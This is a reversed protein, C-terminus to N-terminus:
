KPPETTVGAGPKYIIEVSAAQLGKDGQEATFRVGTGIELREYDDHSVSNKHFYIDEGTDVTKIFGYGEEPFIKNVVGMVQQQPHVKVDGRQKENLEKLQREAAHFTQTLVTELPNHMDGQSASHKAVIEHGPPVTIDINVQYPNGRQQHKQPKQVTVRCSTIHDCVKELKAINKKILDEIEPTKPIDKFSIDVPGQM